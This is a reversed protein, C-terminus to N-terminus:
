SSDVDINVGFNTVGNIGPDVTLTLMIVVTQGPVVASGSYNWSITMFNSAETPTWGSSNLALVTSSEGENRVYITVNKREGPSLTGWDISQLNSSCRFDSYVDISKGFGVSEVISTADLYGDGNSDAIRVVAAQGFLSWSKYTALLRSAAITGSGGLGSVILVWLGHDTDHHLTVTGYDAKVRGQSDREIGYYHGTSPVHIYDTGNPTKDFYVPLMRAGSSNRLNNYYWTVQNVGPGGVVILNSRLSTFSIKGSSSDYASIYDDLASSLTGGTSNMGLEAAVMIAGMVDMTHAGGCPGHGVSSAVIVSCNMLGGSSTFPHSFDKFTYTEQNPDSSFAALSIQSAIALFLMVYVKSFRRRRAIKRKVTEWKSLLVIPLPALALPALANISFPTQSVEVVSIDNLLGDGDTDSYKVVVASGRMNWAEFDSVVKCSAWTGLGGLGALILIYRGGDQLLLVIGYDAKVRGQGDREIRYSRGTSSVYIYDVGDGDKDFFIPLMRAGSSERLNNYHWSIQNVGPGGVVVLNSSVDELNVKAASFNYSSVYDDMTAELMGSSTWMGLKAAVMIAGQVDM